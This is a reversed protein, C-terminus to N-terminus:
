TYTNNWFFEVFLSSRSNLLFVLSQQLGQRIFGSIQGTTSPYFSINLLCLIWVRSFSPRLWLSGLTAFNRPMQNTDQMFSKVIARSDGLDVRHIQVRRASASNKQCSSLVRQVKVIIKCRNSLCLMYDYTAALRLVKGFNPALANM